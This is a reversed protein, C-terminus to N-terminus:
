KLLNNSILQFNSILELRLDTLGHMLKLYGNLIDLYQSWQFLPIEMSSKFASLIVRAAEINTFM